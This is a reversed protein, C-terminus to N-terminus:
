RSPRISTATAAGGMLTARVSVSDNVAIQPDEDDEATRAYTQSFGDASRVSISKDSVGTIVGNQELETRYGGNGDALVSQGHLPLPDMDPRGLGDWSDPGRMSPGGIPHSDEGTAAYVAAGGVGAVVAAVGVAALAHRTSPKNM